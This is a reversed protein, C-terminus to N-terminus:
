PSGCREGSAGARDRADRCDTQARRCRATADADGLVGALACIRHAAHCIARALRCPSPIQEAEAEGSSEPRAVPRDEASVPSPASPPGAADLGSRQVPESPAKAFETESAPAPGSAPWGLATKERAILQELALLEARAEESTAPLPADMEVVSAPAPAGASMGCGSAALLVGLLMWLLGREERRRWPSAADPRSTWPPYAVHAIASMRHRAGM